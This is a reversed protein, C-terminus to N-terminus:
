VWLGYSRGHLISWCTGDMPILFPPPWRPSSSRRACTCSPLTYSPRLPGNAMEGNSGKNSIPSGRKPFGLTKRMVRRDLRNKRCSVRGETARGGEGRSLSMPKADRDRLLNAKERFYGHYGIDPDHELAKLLFADFRTLSGPIRRGSPAYISALLLARVIASASLLTPGAIYPCFGAKFPLSFLLLQSRAM